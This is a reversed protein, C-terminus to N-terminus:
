HTKYMQVDMCFVGEKITGAADAAHHVPDLLQPLSGDRDRIVTDHIAANIEIFSGLSCSDLGDDATLNVQGAPFHFVADMANIIVRVM